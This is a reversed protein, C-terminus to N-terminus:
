QEAGIVAHLNAASVGESGITRADKLTIRSNAANAPPRLVLSWEGYQAIFFLKHAQEATLRLQVSVITNPNSGVTSRLTGTEPAHLVLVDRLIIRSVHHQSGEPMEWSAVVDVHDGTKLTGALLRQPAAELEMARQEGTLESRVGQASSSGFRALTVQEDAYIKETVYTLAIDSKKLIAGPVKNRQEVNTARLYGNDIVERGPTGVPIDRTAVYIQVSSESTQVDKKYQTVYVSVLVVAVAAFGLAILM